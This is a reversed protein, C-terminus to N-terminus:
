KVDEKTAEVSGTKQKMRCEKQRVDEWRDEKAEEFPEGTIACVKSPFVEQVKACLM